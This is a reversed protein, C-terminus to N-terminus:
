HLRCPELSWTSCTSTTSGSTSSRLCDRSPTLSFLCSIRLFASTNTFGPHLSNWTYESTGTKLATHLLCSFRRYDSCFLLLTDSPQKSGCGCLAHWREFRGARLASATMLPRQWVLRRQFVCGNHRRLPGIWRPLVEGQEAGCWLRCDGAGVSCSFVPWRAIYRDLWPFAALASSVLIVRVYPM